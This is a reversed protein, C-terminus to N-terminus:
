HPSPRRSPRRRPRAAAADRPVKVPRAQQQLNAQKMSQAIRKLARQQRQRASLRASETLEVSTRHAWERMLHGYNLLFDHVFARTEVHRQFPARGELYESGVTAAVQLLREAEARAHEIAMLLQQRTALPAFLVRVLAEFELSAPVPPTSLWSQLANRGSATISYTTRPRRGVLERRAEALGCSALRKAEAYIGREARPWFFHLNRRIEAALEYTTWPRLALLGLIAFSTTTLRQDM